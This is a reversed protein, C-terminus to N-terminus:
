WQIAGAVGFSRPAVIPTFQVSPSGAPRKYVTQRGGDRRAILAGVGAGLAFGYAAIGVWHGASWNKTQDPQMGASLTSMASGVFGGIITGKTMSRRTAIRRIDTVNVRKTGNDSRVDIAVATIDTVAGEIESADTTTVWVHQGLTVPLPSSPAQALAAVPAALVVALLLAIRQLTMHVGSSGYGESRTRIQGTCGTSTSSGATLPCHTSM